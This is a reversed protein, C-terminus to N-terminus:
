FAEYNASPKTFYREDRKIDLHTGDQFTVTISVGQYASNILDRIIAYNIPAAAMKDLAKQKKENEKLANYASLLLKVDIM